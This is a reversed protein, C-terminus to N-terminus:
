NFLDLAIQIPMPKSMASEKANIKIHFKTTTHSQIAGVLSQFVLFVWVFIFFKLSSRLSLKQNLIQKALEMLSLEYHTLWLDNCKNVGM